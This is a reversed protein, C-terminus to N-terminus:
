SLVRTEADDAADIFLKILEEDLPRRDCEPCSMTAYLAHGDRQLVLVDCSSFDM